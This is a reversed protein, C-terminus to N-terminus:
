GADTVHNIKWVKGEIVLSVKVKPYGELFTVIATATARKIIVKSVTMSKVWRPEDRPSSPLPDQTQLFYDADFGEGEPLKENRVIESIFRQTIYKSMATRGKATMWPVHTHNSTADHIYWRYFERIVTEPALAAQSSTSATQAGACSFLMIMLILCIITKM